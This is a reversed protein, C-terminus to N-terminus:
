LASLMTISTHRNPYFGLLHMTNHTFYTCSLSLSLGLIMTIFHNLILLLTQKNTQRDARQKYIYHCYQIKMM